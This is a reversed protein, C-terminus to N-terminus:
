RPLSFWVTTGKGLASEAWVRGGHIQVIHKVIALGLGTGGLDRSRAKDVRFFRQFIQDVKDSPIGMGNDRVYFELANQGENLMAGVKVEGNADSYKLANDLLNYFVQEMRFKDATVTLAEDPLDFKLACNKALFKSSWDERLQEFLLRAALKSPNLQIHGSELRSLTLLDEVLSNLRDSHRKMVQFIRKAEDGSIDPQSLLTELYGHFISLPTRLEHSVNAVFEKRLEELQVIRSIDHFVAVAGHIVGNGLTSVSVRFFKRRGGTDLLDEYVLEGSSQKRERLSHEILSKIEPQRLVEWVRRGVPNEKLSFMGQFAKNDAQIVGAVDVIVVGEAMSALITQLSFKEADARSDLSKLRQDAARLDQLISNFSAHGADRPEGHALERSYEAIEQVSRRAHLYFFLGGIVLLCLIITLTTIM